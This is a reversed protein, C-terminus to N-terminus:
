RTVHLQFKAARGAGSGTGLVQEFDVAALDKEVAAEVLSPPVVGPISVPVEQEIRGLDIRHHKGVGVDIM